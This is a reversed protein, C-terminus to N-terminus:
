LSLYLLYVTYGIVKGTLFLHVFMATKKRFVKAVVIVIFM